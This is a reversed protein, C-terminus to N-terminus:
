EEQVTDGNEYVAKTIGGFGWGNSEIWKLFYDLFEEQDIDEKEAFVHGDLMIGKRM